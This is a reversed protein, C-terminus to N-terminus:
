FTTRTIGAAEADPWLRELFAAFTPARQELGTAGAAGGGVIVLLAIVTLGHIAASISGSVLSMAGAAGTARGLGDGHRVTSDGFLARLM